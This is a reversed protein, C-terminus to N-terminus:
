EITIGDIVFGKCNISLSCSGYADGYPAVSFQDSYSYLSAGIFKITKTPNKGYTDTITIIGDFRNQKKALVKLLEPDMKKVEMSLYFVDAQSIPTTNVANKISDKSSTKIQPTQDDTFRSISTGVSNLESKITKGGFTITMEIKNRREDTQANANQNFYLAFLLTFAFLQKM